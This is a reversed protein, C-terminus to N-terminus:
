PTVQSDLWKNVSGRLALAFNDFAIKDSWINASTMKDVRKVFENAMISDKDKQWWFEPLKTQKVKLAMRGDVGQVVQAQKIPVNNAQQNVPAFLPQQQKQQQDQPPVM